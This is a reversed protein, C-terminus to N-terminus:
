AMTTVPPLEVAIFKEAGEEALKRRWNYFSAPSIDRERCFGAVSEGSRVQEELLDRWFRRRELDRGRGM